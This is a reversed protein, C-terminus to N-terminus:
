VAELRSILEAKTLNSYGRVKGSAARKLERITMARYNPQLPASAIAVPLRAAWVREVPNVPKKATRHWRDVLGVVFAALLYALSLTMFAAIM